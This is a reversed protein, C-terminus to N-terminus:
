FPRMLFDRPLFRDDARLCIEAFFQTRGRSDKLGWVRFLRQSAVEAIQREM